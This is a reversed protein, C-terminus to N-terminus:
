SGEGQATWQAISTRLASEARALYPRQASSMLGDLAQTAEAIAAGRHGQAARAQALLLRLESGALSAAGAEARHPLLAAIARGPDNLALALRAEIMSEDRLLLPSGIGCQQRMARAQELAAATAHTDGRGLHALAMDRLVEAVVPSALARNRRSLAAEFQELAAAPDADALLARGLSASIGFPIPHGQLRQGVERLLKSASEGPQGIRANFVALEIRARLAFVADDNRHAWDIASKLHSEAAALDNTALQSLALGFELEPRMRRSTVSGQRGPDQSAQLTFESWDRAKGYDAGLWAIRAAKAVWHVMGEDQPHRHWLAMGQHAAALAQPLDREARQDALAIWYAARWASGHDGRRDLIQGMEALVGPLDPHDVSLDRLASALDLLLALLPESDSDLERALRVARRFFGVALERENLQIYLEGFMGLMRLRAQPADALSRDIEAAGLDLLERATTQRARKPDPSRVSNIWFIQTMFAEAAQATRAARHAEDAQWLALALGASLAVVVAAAAALPWRNRRLFKAGRYRWSPPRALVPEGRLHREIDDAFAAATVYRQLPQKRLAKAIITDLDGELRRAWPMRGRAAQSASIPEADVIADELAGLSARRLDYPLAGAVLEFLLLGLTYIDAAIGIPQGLIQEPAAYQPTLLRQGVETLAAPSEADLLKAIGFDLLRVEGQETVLINSPKLDRHVVLRGHAYQMAHLIQQFLQLRGPLDLGCSQAHDILSRGQVLEMALFPRGDAGAGADYLRAISPHELSALIDRERRFREILLATPLSTHPLKLAVQRELAGDAREALWVSAMGGRGIQRLLRYHAIVEGPQDTGDPAAPGALRPGQQLFDPDAPSRHERLMARLRPVWHRQAQPLSSLWAECAGADLELAQDLLRSLVVLDPSAATM